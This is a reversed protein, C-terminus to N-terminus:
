AAMPVAPLLATFAEHPTQRDSQQAATQSQVLRHLGHHIVSTHEYLKSLLLFLLAGGAQCFPLYGLEDLIVLDVRLLSM